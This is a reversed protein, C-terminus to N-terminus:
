NGRQDHHNWELVQSLFPRTAFFITAAGALLVGGLLPWTTTFGFHTVLFATVTPGLTAGMWVSGQVVGAASAMSSPFKVATAYLLFGPWAWACAYGIIVIVVLPLRGVDLAFASLGLAGAVMIGALYSEPRHLRRDLMLGGSVRVLVTLFSAGALVVGAIDVAIGRHVLYDVSFIAMSTGSFGGCAGVIGLVVLVKMNLKDPEAIVHPQRGPRSAWVRFAAASAIVVIGVGATTVRWGFNNAAVAVAVGAVLTGLPVAAQKIGFALGQRAMPVSETLVRAIALQLAAALVGSVVMWAAFEVWHHSWALGFLALGLGLSSAPVSDRPHIKQVLRGLPIAAVSSSAWFLSLAFGLQTREIGLEERILVSLAGILFIPLVGNASIVASLATTQLIKSLSAGSPGTSAIRGGSGQSM